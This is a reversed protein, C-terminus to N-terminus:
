KLFNLFIDFSLIEVRRVTHRNEVIEALGSQFYKITDM